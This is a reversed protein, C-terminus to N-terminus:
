GFNAQSPGIEGHGHVLASLAGTLGGTVTPVITGADTAAVLAVRVQTWAAQAEPHAAAYTDGDALYKAALDGTKVFLATLQAILALTDM